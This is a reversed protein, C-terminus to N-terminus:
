WSIAEPFWVGDWIYIVSFGWANTKILYFGRRNGKYLHHYLYWMIPIQPIFRQKHLSFLELDVCDPISNLWASLLRGLVVPLKTAAWRTPCSEVGEEIQLLAESSKSTGLVRMHTNKGTWIRQQTCKDRSLALIQM